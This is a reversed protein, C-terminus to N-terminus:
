VFSKNNLRFLVYPSFGNFFHNILENMEESGIEM